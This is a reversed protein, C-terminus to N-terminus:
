CCKTMKMNGEYKMKSFPGWIARLASHLVFVNIKVHGYVNNLILKRLFDMISRIIIPIVVFDSVKRTNAMLQLRGNQFHGM